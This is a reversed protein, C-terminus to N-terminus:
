ITNQMTQCSIQLKWIQREKINKYCVTIFIALYFYIYFTKSHNIMMRFMNNITKRFILFIQMNINKRPTALHLCHAVALLLCPVLWHLNICM